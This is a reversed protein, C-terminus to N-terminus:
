GSKLSCRRVSAEISHVVKHMPDSNYQNKHSVIEDDRVRKFPNLRRLPGHPAMEAHRVKTLGLNDEPHVNDFVFICTGDTDGMLLVGFSIRSFYPMNFLVGEFTGM